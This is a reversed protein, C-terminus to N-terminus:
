FNPHRNPQQRARSQGKASRYASPTMGTVERFARNFTNISQYGVSLAITLIPTRWQQQDGLQGCAERIRYEHLFSNFNRHGLEEHILRRLRYEPL